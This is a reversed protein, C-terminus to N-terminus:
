YARRDKQREQKPKREKRSSLWVGWLGWFYFVVPPCKKSIEVSDISAVIPAEIQFAASQTLGTPFTLAALNAGALNSAAQARLGRSPMLLSEGSKCSEGSPGSQLLCFWWEGKQVEWPSQWSTKQLAQYGWLFWLTHPQRQHQSLSFLSPVSSPLESNSFKFLLILM